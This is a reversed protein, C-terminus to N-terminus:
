GDAIGKLVALVNDYESIIREHHAADGAVEAREDDPHTHLWTSWEVHTNRCFKITAIAAATDPM